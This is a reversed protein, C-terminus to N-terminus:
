SAPAARVSVPEGLLYWTMSSTVRVDVFQGLWDGPADFFVLQNGRTRGRWRGKAFGDVLIERTEGVLARLKAASVREQIREIQQHRAHKVDHPIDDEWRASLTGPRPSYMAVHVKDFEIDNLLQLTNDFQEDTEGPFGVIIDTALTVGPITDRILAIRDRYIEHTYTRRMRRLVENDGAQIPLNVHECLGPLEAITHILKDSFFKPHSTLFRVREIGPVSDVAILLDALDRGDPLDHGYANVTQGLLTVEKVDQAALRRVEDVIEDFPRSIEKGRRYPVICYSCLFNCGYIV